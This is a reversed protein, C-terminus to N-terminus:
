AVAEAAAPPECVAEYIETAPHYDSWVYWFIKNYHPVARLQRGKHTGELCDGRPSWLSGSEDDRFQGGSGDAPAFSLLSGAVQREFVQIYDGGDMSTLLIAVGGIRDNLLRRDKFLSVPYSKTQDGLELGIVLSKLPLRRDAPNQLPYVVEPSAPDIVEARALLKLYFVDRWGIERVWVKSQPYLAQWTGLSTALTPLTRLPLAGNRSRNELQIVSCRSSKDYFVLNNALAATITIDPARFREELAYSMSSHALICHSMIFPAEGASQYVMHPRRALRAIYAWPKGRDDIVGIVEEDPGFKEIARDLSIYRPKLVPRFIMTAHMFFGFLLIGAYLVGAGQMGWSLGGDRLGLFLSYGFLLGSVLLVWRATGYIYRAGADTAAVKHTFMLVGLSGPLIAAACLIVAAIALAEYGAM